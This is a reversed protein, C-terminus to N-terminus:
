GRFRHTSHWELLIPAPREADDPPVRVERGHLAYYDRGNEFEERIRRSVELRYDRTITVYRRDLLTRVSQPSWGGTEFGPDRRSSPRSRSSSAGSGATGGPGTPKGFRRRYRRVRSRMASQSGAGNKSEFAAWALSVPLLSFHAFFGAGAIADHPRKLRFLVPQGPALRKFEREGGPQWFNVEDLDPRASLFRYWEDDTNAVFGRM